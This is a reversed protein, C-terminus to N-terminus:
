SPLPRGVVEDCASAHSFSAARGPHTADLDTPFAALRSAALGRHSRLDACPLFVCSPGPHTADSNPSAALRSAALGRHSGPRRMPSLRLEGLTRLTWTRPSLQSVHLPWGVIHGCTLAHSFSAAQGLTRLTLTPPLQLVHLPWGVIHGLGVCSLLRLEGWLRGRVQYPPSHRGPPLAALRSAALRSSVASRRMDFSRGQSLTLRAAPM